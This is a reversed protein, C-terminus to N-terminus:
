GLSSILESGAPAVSIIMLAPLLTPTLIGMMKSELMAAKANIMAFFEQRSAQARSQLADIMPVNLENAEQVARIFTSISENPSRKAFNELADNMTKGTSILREIEIFEDRLVGYPMNPISDSIGQAFTAGASLSIIILDLAEPLHRKFELDRKKAIENHRIKPFFFGFVTCGLVVISWHVGLLGNLPIWFIWGIIFGLFASTYQFFVFEDAKLGWPNGSRTLLSEIRPYAKREDNNRSGAPLTSYLESSLKTTLRLALSDEAQSENEPSFTDTNRPMLVAYAFLAVALAFLTSIVYPDDM